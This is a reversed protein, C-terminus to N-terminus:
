PVVIQQLAYKQARSEGHQRGYCTSEPRRHRRLRRKCTSTACCCSCCRHRRWLLKPNVAIVGISHAFRKELLVCNIQLLAAGHNQISEDFDFVFNIGRQSETTRATFSYTARAGHVDVAFVAKGTKQVNFGACLGNFDLWQRVCINHFVQNGVECIEIVLVFGDLRPQLTFIHLLLTVLLIELALFVTGLKIAHVFTDQTSAAHSGAWGIPPIRLVIQSGRHEHLRVAPNSIGPVLECLLTQCPDVVGHLQITAMPDHVAGVAAWFTQVWCLCNHMQFLLHSLGVRITPFAHHRLLNGLVFVTLGAHHVHSVGLSDMFNALM